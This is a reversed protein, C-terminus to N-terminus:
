ISKELLIKYQDYCKKTITDKQQLTLNNIQKASIRPDVIKRLDEKEVWFLQRDLKKPMDNGLTPKHQLRVQRGPRLELRQFLIKQIELPTGVLREFDLIVDPRLCPIKALALVQNYRECGVHLPLGRRMWGEIVAYPTRVLFITHCRNSTKKFYGNFKLFGEYCKILTICKKLEEIKYLREPSRYKNFAPHKLAHLKSEYILTEIKRIHIENYIKPIDYNDRYFAGPYHQSLGFMTLRKRLVDVINDQLSRGWLMKHFEGGVTAIDPSSLLLNMLLNTGGRAFGNVIVKDNNIM